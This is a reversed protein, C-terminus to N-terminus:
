KKQNKVQKKEKKETKLQQEENKTKLKENQDPAVLVVKIHAYRRVYPKAMGRGGARFRKLKLGEEIALTKFQLLNEEAKLTNKANHLASDIAKYLFKAAKQNAYKLKHLAEFPKLRKVAPVLFRLKKPSIKVNKIYAQAEM